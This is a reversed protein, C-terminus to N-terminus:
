ICENSFTVLKSRLFAFQTTSSRSNLTFAPGAISSVWCQAAQAALQERPSSKVRRVRARLFAIYWHVQLLHLRHYCCFIICCTIDQLGDVAEEVAISVPTGVTDSAIGPNFQAHQASM